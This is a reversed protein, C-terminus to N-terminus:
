FSLLIFPYFSLLIFPYFSLLIFPYVQGGQSCHGGPGVVLFNLANYPAPSLTRYATYADLQQQLFIDYRPLFLSLLSLFTLAVVRIYLPSPSLPLPLSPSLSLPLSPSPTGDLKTSLLGDSIRGSLSMTRRHGFLVTLKM